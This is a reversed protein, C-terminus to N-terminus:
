SGPCTAGGFALVACYSDRSVLWKGNELVATGNHTGYPAGGTYHLTFQLAATEPDTFVLPGLDVSSSAAAAAFNRRLEDLARGSVRVQPIDSSM